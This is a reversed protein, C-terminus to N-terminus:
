IINMKIGIPKTKSDISHTNPRASNLRTKPTNVRFGISKLTYGTTFLNFRPPNLKSIVTNPWLDISNLPKVVLNVKSGIPILIFGIPELSTSLM